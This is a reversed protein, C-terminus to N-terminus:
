GGPANEPTKHSFIIEVEAHTLRPPPEPLDRISPIWLGSPPIM